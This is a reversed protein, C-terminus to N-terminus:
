KAALHFIYDPRYQNLLDSVLKLNSVSGIIDGSSRSVGVVNVKQRLLLKSLYYGDQGSSGFIIATKKPHMM